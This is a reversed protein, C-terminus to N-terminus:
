AGLRIDYHDGLAAFQLVTLFSPTAAQPQRLVEIDALRPDARVQERRVRQHAPLIRLDMPVSWPEDACKATAPGTLQGIGWVGYNLRGHNGSAWFIVVQGAKMLRARYGPRVCWERIHPDRAFRAVLDTTDANGKIVWAGLDAESVGREGM